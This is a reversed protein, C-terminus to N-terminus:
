ASTYIRFFYYLLCLLLLLISCSSSGNYGEFYLRMNGGERLSDTVGDTPHSKVISGSQGHSNSNLKSFRNVRSVIWGSDSILPALMTQPGSTPSARRTAQQTPLFSLLSVRHSHNYKQQTTLPLVSKEHRMEDEGRWGSARPSRLKTAPYPTGLM